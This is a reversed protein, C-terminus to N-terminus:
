CLAQRLRERASQSLRAIGICRALETPDNGAALLNGIARIEEKCIYNVKRMEEDRGNHRAPAVREDIMGERWFFLGVDEKTWSKQKKAIAIVIDRIQRGARQFGHHRAIRRILIDEHIPGETDIVHEIMSSLRPEYEESYFMNADPRYRDGEFTAMAYSQEYIDVPDDSFVPTRTDLLGSNSSGPKSLDAAIYSPIPEANPISSVPESVPMNVSWVPTVIEEEGIVDSHLSADSTNEIVAQAADERRQRDQELHASLVEHLSNLAKAQHTWWDTSWVEGTRQRHLEQDQEQTTPSPVSQISIRAGEALKDELLGPDPCILRLSTKSSKHNLLPNRASLDLLKRQWRELRGAPTAPMEEKVIGDDFDPLAPAEEFTLGVQDNSESEAPSLSQGSKLGLPAIRHARARRIDVASNFTNDKHPLIVEMAAMVAKSFPLAPHSTVLTTEILVLEKLQIRKRLIEAEEIVITSLEEPQLWVGVVAHGEPLAVIPNLGAQELASAFLMTSDLCTAVRNEMIHSPLRIKQGDQEFSAPPVSYTIGLNCIATYIASAIEWVRQRSKTKYGDIGDPKGARRLLLSAERLVRDIAPDNPMSFAALLEPMFGAGGWENYALLEVPRVKEALISGSPAIRELRWSKPKLFPPASSLNVFVEDLRGEQDNNEIRLERLFAFANQHCAFNLKALTECHITAGVSKELAM